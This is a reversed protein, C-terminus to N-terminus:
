AMRGIVYSIVLGITGSSVVTVAMVGVARMRLVHRQRPTQISPISVLVGRGLIDVAEQENRVSSDTMEMVFALGVGAFLGGLLSGIGYLFRNPGVPKSPVEAPDLVVFREAQEHTVLSTYMDASLKKDLLHNYHARLTDYDRMLGAMRQEFVPEQELKSSHFAIQEELPKQVKTQEQIEQQLQNIQAMVVPNRNVRRVPRPTESVAPAEKQESAIKTKLQEIESQAKRVDPHGPGYRGRLDTLHSELKELQAEEPSSGAGQSDADLDVTSNTNGLSSQLLMMQQQARSVRDQSAQLQNRLTTLAELHFQKSEPLDMIYTSKIRGMEIEKQELEKKTKQLETELFEATDSSHEVGAQVNNEIVMNALRNPVTAAEEPTVATFRIQFASLRSGGADVVELQISRQLKQIVSDERGAAREKAYLGTQDLLQKLRTPSMVEQRVTSLRDAVTINGTAPVYSDPVKQPDVLIVTQSQYLDPLRVAVVLTAVFIATTTVIISWKRRRLVGLYKDVQIDEFLQTSQSPSDNM